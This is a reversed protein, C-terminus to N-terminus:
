FGMEGYMTDLRKEFSADREGKPFFPMRAMELSEESYETDSGSSYQEELFDQYIKECENPTQTTPHYGIAEIPGVTFYPVQTTVEYFKGALPIPFLSRNYRNSKQCM